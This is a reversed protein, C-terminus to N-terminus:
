NITVRSKSIDMSNSADHQQGQGITWATAPVM